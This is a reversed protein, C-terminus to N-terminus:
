RINIKPQKFTAPKNVYVRSRLVGLVFYMPMEYHGNSTVTVHFLAVTSSERLFELTALFFVGLSGSLKQTHWPTADIVHPNEKVWIYCNQKNTCESLEFRSEDSFFTNVRPLNQM